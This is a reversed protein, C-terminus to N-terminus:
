AGCVLWASSRQSAQGGVKERVLCFAGMCSVGQEGESIWLELGFRVM